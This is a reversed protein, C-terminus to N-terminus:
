SRLICLIVLVQITDIGIISTFHLLRSLALLEVRTNTTPGCSMLLQYNHDENIEVNRKSMKVIYKSEVFLM